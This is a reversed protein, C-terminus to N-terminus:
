QVVTAGRAKYHDVQDAPVQTTQGTPARMTVMQVAAPATVSVMGGGGRTAGQTANPQGALRNNEDTIFTGVSKRMSELAGKTAEPSNKFSNVLAEAQAAVGSASRMGHASQGVMGLNHSITALAAVDPDDTGMANRLGTLRGAVPGFLEPRRQLIDELQNINDNANRALDARKQEEANIKETGDPNKSAGAPIAMGPTVQVAKMSGDPQKIYVMAKPPTGGGQEFRLRASNTNANQAAAAAQQQRAAAQLSANAEDAQNHRATEADQIQKLHQDAQDKATIAQQQFQQVLQPDYAAPFRSTDIGAAQLTQRAQDYSAQDKVTGAVSGVMDLQSKANELQTKTLAARLQQRQFDQTAFEQARQMALTPATKGLESLYGARNLSVSGDPNQQMNKQAAARDAQEDQWSQGAQNLRLQGEQVAQQGMQQQLGANKLAMAQGALQVPSQIQVPQFSMAINPDIAM